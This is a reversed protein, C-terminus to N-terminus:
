NARAEDLLDRAADLDVPGWAELDYSVDLLHLIREDDGANVAAAADRRFRAEVPTAIASRDIERLEVDLIHPLDEGGDPLEPFAVPGPTLYATGDREFEVLFYREVAADIQDTFVADETGQRYALEALATTLEERTLATFLDVVGALEDHRLDM